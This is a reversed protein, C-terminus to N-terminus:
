VDEKKPLDVRLAEAQERYKNAIQRLVAYDLSDDNTLIVHALLNDSVRELPQYIYRLRRYERLHEEPVHGKTQYM